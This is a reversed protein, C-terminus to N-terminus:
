RPRRVVRRRARASGLSLPRDADEALVRALRDGGNFWNARVAREAGAARGDRVAAVIADHEAYTATFDPGILPAYLWEYRDLRPRMTEFLARITAGAAADRLARHFADHREFLEDYDLPTQRSAARFAADRQRMERALRKRDGPTLASVGRAVIGELAGAARYIEIVDSPGVPAAAMRPRAGGGDAVLLGEARLRRMAERVPTRSVALRTTLDAETVREGPQIAGRILLGRLRRYADAHLAPDTVDPIATVDPDPDSADRITGVRTPVIRSAESGVQRFPIRFVYVKNTRRPLWRFSSAHRVAHTAREGRM